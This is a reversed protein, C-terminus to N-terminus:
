GRAGHLLALLDLHDGVLGPREQLAGPQRGLLQVLVADRHRHGAVVGAREEHARAHHLLDNDPRVADRGVAVGGVLDAGVAHGDQGPM